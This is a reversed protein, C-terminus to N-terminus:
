DAVPNLGFPNLFIERGAMHRQVHANWGCQNTSRRVAQALWILILHIYQYPKEAFGLWGGTELWRVKDAPLPAKAALYTGHKRRRQQAWTAFTQYKNGAVEAFELGPLGSRAFEDLLQERRLKPTRVRGLQDQKLVVEDTLTTNM